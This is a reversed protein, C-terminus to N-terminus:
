WLPREQLIRSIETPSLPTSRTFHHAGDATAHHPSPLEGHTDKAHTLLSLSSDSLIFYTHILRKQLARYFFHSFFPSFMQPM